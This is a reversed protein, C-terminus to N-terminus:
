LYKFINSRKMGELIPRPNAKIFEDIVKEGDVKDNLHFNKEIWDIVRQDNGHYLPDELLQKITTKKM